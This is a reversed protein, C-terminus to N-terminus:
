RAPRLAAKLAEMEEEVSGSDTLTGALEERIYTRLRKRMRMVTLKVAGESLGLGAGADSYNPLGIDGALYPELASEVEPKGKVEYHERLRRRAEGIVAEAWLRDFQQEPTCEDSPPDPTTEADLSVRPERGGRKQAGNHRYHNAILNRAAAFIYCRLKGRSQDAAALGGRSAFGTFLEQVLDEADEPPLGRSRIFQLVPRRYIRCLEATAACRLDHNTGQLERILTWRTQPMLSEGAGGGEPANDVMGSLCLM